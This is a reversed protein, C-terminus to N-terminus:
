ADILRLKSVVHAHCYDNCQDLFKAEEYQLNTLALQIILTGALAVFTTEFATSLGATTGQLAEKIATLDGAAEMTSGFGGIAVSLGLVTGIFGLVPIAWVFGSVIKYSSAIQDEDYQAQDRLINSVESINGINRLNSLAREIRNLLIFHRTEDVLKHIRKLVDTASKRDLVFDPEQPVAALTLARQQFKLKRWKVFLIGLSWFFMLMILYPMIGHALFMHAVIAAAHGVSSASQTYPKICYVMFLFFTFTLFVSLLFALSKNSTTFRGGRFGLRQEVDDQTWNLVPRDIESARKSKEVTDKM